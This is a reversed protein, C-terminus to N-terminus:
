WGRSRFGIFTGSGIAYRGWWFGWGSWYSPWAPPSRDSYLPTVRSNGYRNLAVAGLRSPPNETLYTVDGRPAPMDILTRASAPAAAIVLVFGM